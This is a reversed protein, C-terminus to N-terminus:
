VSKWLRQRIKEADLLKWRRTPASNEWHLSFDECVSKHTQNGGYLNEAWVCIRVWPSWWWLACRWVSPQLRMWVIYTKFYCNIRFSKSCFVSSILGCTNYCWWMDLEVLVMRRQYRWMCVLHITVRFITHWSFLQVFDSWGLTVGM